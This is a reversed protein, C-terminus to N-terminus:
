LKRILRPKEAFICGGLGLSGFENKGYAYLKGDETRIINHVKGSIIEVIKLGELSLVVEDIPM